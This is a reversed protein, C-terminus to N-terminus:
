KSSNSLEVLTTHLHVTGSLKRRLRELHM